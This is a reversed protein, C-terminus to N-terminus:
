RGEVGSRQGIQGFSGLGFNSVAWVVGLFDEGQQLVGYFTPNGQVSKKACSRRSTLAGSGWIAFFFRFHYVGDSVAWSPCGLTMACPASRCLSSRHCICLKRQLSAARCLIRRVAEFM